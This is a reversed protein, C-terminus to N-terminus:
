GPRFGTPTRPSAAAAPARRHWRWRHELAPLFQNRFLDAAVIVAQERRQANRQAATKRAPHRLVPLRDDVAIWRDLGSIQVIRGLEARQARRQRNRQFPQGAHDAHQRKIVRFGVGESGIVQADQQRDARLHRQGDLIGQLVLLGLTRRDGVVQGSQGVGSRQEQLQVAFQRAALAVGCRQDDHDAIHVAELLDVVAEAVQFAIAHQAQERLGQFVAAAFVVVHGAHASVFKHHNRRAQGSSAAALFASLRRSSARCAPWSTQLSSM